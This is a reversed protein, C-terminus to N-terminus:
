ERLRRGTLGIFVDELTNERLKVEKPTLDVGRLLELIGALKEVMSQARLTLHEGLVQLDDVMGKLAEGGKALAGESVGVFSLELTDGVGLNKKLAEPTDVTLLKGHDIIAVRDAVREAEDMNHTTLIVTKKRALSQIFERVLVRSQPDLGAEPEDLVVVEPDHVLALAVNLRRKMGGSLTQARKKAKELLGLRDLLEFARRKADVAKLEYMEGLFVLQEVCTLEPWIVVQQPCVGVRARVNASGAEIAEGRLLTRGSTPVLLGCMMSISTTKGAGNPGLFGFVEGEHVELSLGDVAVFDGFRKTLGETQLVVGM